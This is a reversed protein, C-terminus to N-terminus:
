DYHAESRIAKQRVRQTSERKRGGWVQLEFASRRALVAALPGAKQHDGILQSAEECHGVASPLYRDRCQAQCPDYSPM